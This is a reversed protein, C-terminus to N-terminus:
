TQEERYNNLKSKYPLTMSGGATKNYQETENTKPLPM